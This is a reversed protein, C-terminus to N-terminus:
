RERSPEVPLDMGYGPEPGHWEEAPAPHHGGGHGDDAHDDQHEDAGGALAAHMADVTARPLEDLPAHQSRQLVRIYAAIAWRDEVPVQRAYASMQGFGNSMVDFFYGVPMARLRDTHYSEPQKFGRRVIMGRGAGTADHCPTCFIEYRQKGRRLLEPTLALAIPLTDAIVGDAQGRYLHPDENLHGRAVTDAPIPRAAMGDAFFTSSELPDLRPADHMDQRCGIVPLALM